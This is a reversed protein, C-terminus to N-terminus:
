RKNNPHTPALTLTPQWMLQIEGSPALFGPLGRGHAEGRVPCGNRKEAVASHIKPLGVRLALNGFPHGEACKFSSSLKTDM